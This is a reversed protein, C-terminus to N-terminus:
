ARCSWWQTTTIAEENLDTASIALLDVDLGMKHFDGARAPELNRADNSTELDFANLFM